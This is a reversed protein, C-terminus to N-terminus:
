KKVKPVVVTPVDQWESWESGIVNIAGSADIYGPLVRMQLKPKETNTGELTTWRLEIM